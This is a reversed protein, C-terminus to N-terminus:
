ARFAAEVTDVAVTPSAKLECEWITVVSWGLKELAEKNAADRQITREFKNTWFVSNTNPM